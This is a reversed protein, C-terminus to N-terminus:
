SKKVTATDSDSNSPVYSNEEDDVDDVDDIDEGGKKSVFSIYEDYLLELSKVALRAARQTEAQRTISYKEPKTIILHKYVEFMYKEVFLKKRDLNNTEDIM